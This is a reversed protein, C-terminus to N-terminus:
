VKVQQYRESMLIYREAEWYELNYTKRSTDKVPQMQSCWCPVLRVKQKQVVRHCSGHKPLAPLM